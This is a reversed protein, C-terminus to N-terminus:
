EQGSAKSSLRMELARKLEDRVGASQKLIEKARLFDLVRFRGVEPQLFIDPRCQKLKLAIMSRMTLQSAGYLSDISNPIAGEDGTPRGVVDVGITIDATGMLHDFPIPNWLGGDILIRGDIRVPRFVAPLSASAALAPYLPGREQVRECQEYFDAAIVKLPIQLDEFRDPIQPHLFARLVRELNFQGIRFKNTWAEALTAPRLGWIRGLAESPRGVAALTHERIEKGSLGAAMAAGMIAGISSGAILKPRIGLEDLVEIVHIHALGRAGGGGLALAVTPMALRVNSRPADLKPADDLM